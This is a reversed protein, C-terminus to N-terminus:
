NPAHVGNNLGFDASTDFKQTELNVSGLVTGPHIYQPVSGMFETASAEGGYPDTYVIDDATGPDSVKLQNIYFDRKAGSFPSRPDQWDFPGVTNVLSWPYSTAPNTALWALDVTHSVGNTTPTSLAPDYYRSPNRVGFWPDFSALQAGGTTTIENFGEWLEYIAWEQANPGTAWANVCSATPILRRGGDGLPLTSGVTTVTAYPSCNANFENSNGFRSLMSTIVATGDNCKVAFLLEHANNSTADPSWSGQHLKILFDCQVKTTTGPLYLWNRQDDLMTVNNAVFVKHGANDEHRMSHGEGGHMIWHDLQESVYGFPLGQPESSTRDDPSFWDAVWQYIDSSTPDAGHEHGFTCLQGTAPDVVQAPHWTPYIKGDPGVTQYSAHLSAPCTDYSTPTWNRQSYAVSETREVVPTGGGSGGGGGGNSGGGGAGSQESVSTATATPTSTASPTPTTTPAPSEVAPSVNQTATVKHPLREAVRLTFRTPQAGSVLDMLLAHSVDLTVSSTGRKRTVVASTVVAGNDFLTLTATCGAAAACRLSLPLGNMHRLEATNITATLSPSAKRLQATTKVTLPKPLKQVLNATFTVGSKALFKAYQARTLTWRLTTSKGKDATFSFTKSGVSALSVTVRGTCTTAASCTITSTVVRDEGVGTDVVLKSAPGAALSPQTPVFLAALVALLALVKVTRGLPLLVPRTPRSRM